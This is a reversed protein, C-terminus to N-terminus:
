LIQQSPSILYGSCKAFDKAHPLRECISPMTLGMREGGEVQVKHSSWTAGPSWRLHIYKHRGLKLSRSSTHHVCHGSLGLQPSIHTSQLSSQFEALGQISFRPQTLSDPRDPQKAWRGQASGPQLLAAAGLRALGLCPAEGAARGGGHGRSPEFPQAEHRTVYCLLVYQNTQLLM